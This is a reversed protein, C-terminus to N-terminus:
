WYLRSQLKRGYFESSGHCFRHIFIQKVSVGILINTLYDVLASHATRPDLLIPETLWWVSLISSLICRYAVTSHGIANCLLTSSIHGSLFNWAQKTLDFEVVPFM